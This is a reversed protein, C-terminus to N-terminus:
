SCGQFCGYKLGSKQFFTSVTVSFDANQLKSYELSLGALKLPSYDTPSTLEDISNVFEGPSLIRVGYQQHVYESLENNLWGGDRTIFVEAGAAVSQAIHVIDYWMNSNEAAPRKGLLETKVNQFLDEDVNELTPYHEKAYNRHSNRIRKKNKYSKSYTKFNIM